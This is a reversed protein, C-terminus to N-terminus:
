SDTLGNFDAGTISVSEDHRGPMLVSMTTWLRGVQEQIILVRIAAHPTQSMQKMSNDLVFPKQLM